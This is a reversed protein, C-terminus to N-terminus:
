ASQSARREDLQKRIEHAVSRSVTYRSMIWAGIGFTLIPFFCYVAKLLQLTEPTQEVTKGTTGAKFGIMVLLYGALMLSLANGTKYVWGYLAGFLGERRQGSELEDVDCIDSLMAHCLMFVAAGDFAALVSNCLVLWPHAPDLLWWLIISRVAGYGLAFVFIEKKGFRISLKAAFPTLLISGICSVTLNWGGLISAAARDGGFLYYTHIYFNLSNVFSVGILVLTFAITLQLFPRCKFADRVGQWFAGRNKEATGAAQKLPANKPERIFIAPIIGLVMLLIGAACGMFRVGEIMDSFIKLQTIPYFWAVAIQGAPGFMNVWAQLRTRDDYNSPLEYGLAYWPVSFVTLALYFLTASATFYALYGWETLGRPFFWMSAFFLANLIAGLFIYPRRRGWKSSTKDSVHGMITDTFADLIRAAGLITSIVGANVGLADNYIPLALQKPALKSIMVPCNGVAFALKTSAPLREDKPISPTPNMSFWLLMTERNGSPFAGCVHASQLEVRPAPDSICQSDIIRDPNKIRSSEM